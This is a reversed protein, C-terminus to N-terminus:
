VNHNHNNNDEQQQEKAAPVAANITADVPTVDEATSEVTSTTDNLPKGINANEDVTSPSEEQPQSSIALIMLMGHNSWLNMM